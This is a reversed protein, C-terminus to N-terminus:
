IEINLKQLKVRIYNVKKKMNLLTRHMRIFNDCYKHNPLTGYSYLRDGYCVMGGIDVHYHYFKRESVRVYGWTFLNGFILRIFLLPM